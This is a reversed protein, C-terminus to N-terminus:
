REPGDSSLVSLKVGGEQLYFVGTAPAGQAFVV